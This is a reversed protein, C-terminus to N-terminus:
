KCITFLKERIYEIGNLKFFSDRSVGNFNYVRIFLSDSVPLNQIFKEVEKTYFASKGDTSTLWMSEVAPMKGIRYITRVNDRGLFIDTNLYLDIKHSRCRMTLSTAGSLSDRGKLHAYFEPTDDVPNTDISFSWDSSLNKLNRNLNWESFIYQINKNGFTRIEGSDKKIFVYPLGSKLPIALITEADTRHTKSLCYLVDKEINCPWTDDITEVFEDFVKKDLVQLIRKRESVDNIIDILSKNNWRKVSEVGSPLDVSSMDPWQFEIIKKSYVGDKITIETRAKTKSDIKEFILGNDLIQAAGSLSEGLYSGSNENISFIDHWETSAGASGYTEIIIFKDFSWLKEINKVSYNGEIVKNNFFIVNDEIGSNATKLELTGFKTQRIIDESQDKGIVDSAAIYGRISSPDATTVQILGHKPIPGNYNLLEGKKLVTLIGSNISWSKHLTAVESSVLVSSYIKQYQKLDAFVSNNYNLMFMILFIFRKM